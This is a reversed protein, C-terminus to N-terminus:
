SVARTDRGFVWRRGREGEILFLLCRKTLTRSRTAFPKEYNISLSQSSVTELPSCFAAPTKVQLILAHQPVYTPPPPSMKKRMNKERWASRKTCSFLVFYNLTFRTARQKDLGRVCVVLGVSKQVCLRGGWLCWVLLCSFAANPRTECAM